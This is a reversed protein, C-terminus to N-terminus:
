QITVTTGTGWPGPSQFDVSCGSDGGGGSVNCGAGNRVFFLIKYTGPAVNTIPINVAGNGNADTLVVGVEVEAATATVGQRTLTFCTGGGLDVPFTGFTAPFTTCFFNLSVQYVKSPAAGVLKYNVTLKHKAATWKVYSKTYNLPEGFNDWGATFKQSVAAPAVVDTEIAQAALTAVGAIGFIIALSISRLNM